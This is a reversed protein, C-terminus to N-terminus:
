TPQAKLGVIIVSGEGLFKPILIDLIEIRERPSPFAYSLVEHIFIGRKLEVGLSTIVVILGIYKGWFIM